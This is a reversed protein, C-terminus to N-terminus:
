HRHPLHRSHLLVGPVGEPDGDEGVEAELRLRDLKLSCNLIIDILSHLHRMLDSLLTHTYLLAPVIYM